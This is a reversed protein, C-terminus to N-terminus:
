PHILQSERSIIFQEGQELFEKIPNLCTDLRDAALAHDAGYLFSLHCARIKERCLRGAEASGSTDRTGVVVLTPANVEDLRVISHQSLKIPSLLILKDVQEPAAIAQALAPAAGDSIGIACYRDLGFKAFADSLKEASGEITSSRRSSLDLSIVRQSEALKTILPDFLEGDQPPFVILLDGRGAELYSVDLGNAQLRGEKTSIEIPMNSNLSRSDAPDCSQRLM